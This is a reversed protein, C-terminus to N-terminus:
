VDWSYLLMYCSLTMLNSGKTANTNKTVFFFEEFKAEVGLKGLANGWTAFITSRGWKEDAVAGVCGKTCPNTCLVFFGGIMVDETSNRDLGTTLIIESRGTYINKFHWGAFSNRSNKEEWLGNGLSMMISNEVGAKTWAQQVQLILPKTFTQHHCSAMFQTWTKSHWIFESAWCKEWIVM